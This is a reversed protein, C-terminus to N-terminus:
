AAAEEFAPVIARVLGERAREAELTTWPASNLLVAADVIDREAFTDALRGVAAAFAEQDLMLAAHVMSLLAGLEADGATARAEGEVFAAIETAELFGALPLAEGLLVDFRGVLGAAGYVRGREPTPLSSLALAQRVQELLELRLESEDADRAHQELEQAYRRAEGALTAMLWRRDRSM